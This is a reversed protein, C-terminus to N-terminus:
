RRDITHLGHRISLALPALLPSFPPRLQPSLHCTDSVISSFSFRAASPPTLRHHGIRNTTESRTRARWLCYALPTRRQPDRRQDDDDDHVPSPFLIRLLRDQFSIAM